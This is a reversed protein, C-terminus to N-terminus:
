NSGISMSESKRKGETQHLDVYRLGNHGTDDLICHYLEEGVLGGGVHRGGTPRVASCLNGLGPLRVTATQWVFSTSRRTHWLM